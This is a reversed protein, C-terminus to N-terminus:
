FIGFDSFYEDVRRVCELDLLQFWVKDKLYLVDRCELGNFVVHLYLDGYRSFSFGM